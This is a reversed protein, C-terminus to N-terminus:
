VTWRHAENDGTWSKESYKLQKKVWRVTDPNGMNKGLNDSIKVAHNGNLDSLKIVINLPESSTNLDSKKQFHNTFNTGVGFSSKLGFQRAINAYKIAKEVDLSDSYCIVKSFKPYGLVEHYHHAIKKTYSIPDGSDQRVGAYYDSYPPKFHKLFSDTGFTDTLALGAHTSGFTNIWYDMANKNANIYDGTISAIGMMWEHAVTGVPSLNYKKSFYVNSTGLFLNGTDYEEVAKIIGQIVLDHSKFSRRRRTGFESFTIGNKLLTKTKEYANAIQGDYDWDTDVFKFYAESVLALLPIEYLITEQWLGKVIINLNFHDDKDTSSTNFELQENPKLCFSPNSIYDLYSEPLFPINNRLYVIEEETFRLNGLLSFQEKLWDVACQNFTMHPSRNTYKYTVYADPFNMFVAAHMTLKYMDTDLLSTIVPQTM